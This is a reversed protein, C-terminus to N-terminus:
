ARELYLTVIRESPEVRYPVHIEPESPVTVALVTWRAGLGSVSTGPRVGGRRPVVAYAEVRHADTEVSESVLEILRAPSNGSGRPLPEDATEDVLWRFGDGPKRHVHIRLRSFAERLRMEVASAAEPAGKPSIGKSAVLAAEVADRLRELAGEDGAEPLYAVSFADDAAM